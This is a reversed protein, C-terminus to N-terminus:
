VGASMVANSPREKWYLWIGLIVAALGWSVWGSLPLLPGPIGPISALRKWFIVQLVLALVVSASPPLAAAVHRLFHFTLRLVAALLATSGAAQWGLFAGAIVLAGHSCSGTRFLLGGLSFGFAAGAICQAWAMARTAEGDAVPRGSFPVPYLDPRITVAIAAVLLGPLILRKWPCPHGDHEIWALAFVTCLAYLHFLYMWLVPGRLSWVNWLVGHYQDQPRVALNAGGSFLEVNALALFLLGVLAEILPYRGSIPTRCARCRGRLKIWGFVPINDRVAIRQMCIPCRSPPWLLGIGAPIRHIVVNLFSGVILGLALFWGATFAKIILVGVDLFADGTADSAAPM